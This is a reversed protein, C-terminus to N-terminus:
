LHRGAAARFAEPTTGTYKKFFKVFYSNDSFNLNYAIESVTRADKVLSRKAELLIRNRILEGASINVFHQVVQNLHHPTIHMAAAYERPLKKDMFHQEVLELFHIYHRYYADNVRTSEGIELNASFKVLLQGLRGAIDLNTYIGSSQQLNYLAEMKKQVDPVFQQPVGYVQQTSFKRFLPLHGLLESRIFNTDLFEPSFNIVFGSTGTHFHWSHVQGPYMFYVTHDGATYTEFDLTHTGKGKRIYALHYFNHSHLETVGPNKPIYDELRDINFLDNPLKTTHLQCIELNPYRM